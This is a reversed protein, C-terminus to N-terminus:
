SKWSTILHKCLGFISDKRVDRPVFYKGQCCEWLHIKAEKNSIRHNMKLRGDALWSSSSGRSANSNHPWSLAHGARTTKRSNYYIVNILFECIVRERFPHTSHRSKPTDESIDTLIKNESWFNGKQFLTMQSCIDNSFMYCQTLHFLRSVSLCIVCSRVQLHLRVFTSASLVLCQFCHAPLTLIPLYQNFLVFNWVPDM